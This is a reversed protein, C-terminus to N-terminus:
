YIIKKEGNGKVRYFVGDEWLLAQLSQLEDAPVDISYVLGGYHSMVSDTESHGVVVAEANFFKLIEEVQPGTLQPYDLEM